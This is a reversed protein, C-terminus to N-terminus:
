VAVRVRRYLREPAVDAGNPWTITGLEPDVRVRRFFDLERLPEFVPRELLDTLDVEGEVGDEFRLWLVHDRVHRVAIVDVLEM